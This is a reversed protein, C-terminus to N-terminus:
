LGLAFVYKPPLYGHTVGCVSVGFDGTLLVLVPLSAEIGLLLLQHLQGGVTLQQPLLQPSHILVVGVRETRRLLSRGVAIRSHPQAGTAIDVIVALPQAHRQHRRTGLVAQTFLLLGSM